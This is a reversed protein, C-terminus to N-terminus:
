NLRAFVIGAASTFSAFDRRRFGISKEAFGEINPPPEPAGEKALPLSATAAIDMLM